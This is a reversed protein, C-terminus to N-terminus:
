DEKPNFKVHKKMLLGSAVLNATVLLWACLPADDNMCLGMISALFWLVILVQKTTLGELGAEKKIREITKM